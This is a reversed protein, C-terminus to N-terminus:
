TDSGRRSRIAPRLRASPRRGVPRPLCAPASSSIAVSRGSAFPRMASSRRGASEGTSGTSVAPSASLAGVICPRDVDVLVADVMDRRDVFPLGHPQRLVEEDLRALGIRGVHGDRTRPAVVAGARNFFDRDRHSRSVLEAEVVDVKVVGDVATGFLGHPQQLLGALLLSVARREQRELVELEHGPIEDADVGGRLVRVGFRLGVHEEDLHIRELALERLRLLAAATTTAASAAALADLGILNGPALLFDDRRRELLQAVLGRRRLLGGSGAFNRDPTCDM